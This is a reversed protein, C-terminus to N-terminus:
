RVASTWSRRIDPEEKGEDFPRCVRDGRIRAATGANPATIIASPIPIRNMPANIKETGEMGKNEEIGKNEGM